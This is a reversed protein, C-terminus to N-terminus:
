VLTAAPAALVRGGRSGRVFHHQPEFLDEPCPGAVALLDGPPIEARQPHQQLSVYFHVPQFRPCPSPAPVHVPLLSVPQSCPCPSPAAVRAPLLSLARRAPLM